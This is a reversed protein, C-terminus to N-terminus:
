KIHSNIKINIKIQQLNYYLNYSISLDHLQVLNNM